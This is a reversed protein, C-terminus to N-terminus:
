HIISKKAREQADIEKQLKVLEDIVKERKPSIIQDINVRMKEMEPIVVNAWECIADGPEHNLIINCAKQLTPFSMNKPDMEVMEQYQSLPCQLSPFSRKMLALLLWGRMDKHIEKVPYTVGRMAESFKPMFDPHNLFQNRYQQTAAANNGLPAAANNGLPTNM